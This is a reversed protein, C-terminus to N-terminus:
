AFHAPRKNVADERMAVIDAQQQVGAYVGVATEIRVEFRRVLEFGRCYIATRHDAHGYAVLAAHADFDAGDRGVAHIGLM